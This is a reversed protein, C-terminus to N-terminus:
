DYLEALFANLLKRTEEIDRKKVVSAGSHIYRCPLSVAM